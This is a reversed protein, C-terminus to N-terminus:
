GGKLQRAAAEATDEPQTNFAIAASPAAKHVANVVMEFLPMFFASSRADEYAPPLPRQFAALDRELRQAITEDHGRLRDEM